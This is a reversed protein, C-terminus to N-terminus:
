CGKFGAALVAQKYKEVLRPLHDLHDRARRSKASLTDIKTVIRRQEPLPAIPVRVQSLITANAGPQATGKSVLQIQSWYDNSKLFSFLYKAEVIEKLRLRILYSAFVAEESLEEIM